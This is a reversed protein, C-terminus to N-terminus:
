ALILFSILLGFKMFDTVQPPKYATFLWCILINKVASFCKLFTVLFFKHFIGVVSIM